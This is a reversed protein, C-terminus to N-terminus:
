NRANHSIEEKGKPQKQGGSAIGHYLGMGAAVLLMVSMVTFDVWGLPNETTTTM